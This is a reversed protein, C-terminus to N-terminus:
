KEKLAVWSCTSGHFEAQKGGNVKGFEGLSYFGVTPKEWTKALGEIEISAMPGLMLYRGICSFVVMADADPLEKEKINRSTEAVTETIEFDPPLSFRFTTGAPLANTSLVSGDKPNYETIAVLLPSYGARKVQIPYSTNIRVSTESQNQNLTDDIIDDGIYKKVVDIARQNDITFIRRGESKTITKETGVAKWGSVAEGKVVIRENDFVLALLGYDCIKNNTFVTSTYNIHEGAIGGAITVDHGTKEIIGDIIENSQIMLSAQSIIFAPKQFTKLGFDGLQNAMKKPSLEKNKILVIKFSEPPIDLLLMTIGETKQEDGTFHCFATAGFIAINREGFLNQIGTIKSESSVFILALTPNFGLKLMEELKSTIEQLSNGQISKAIM